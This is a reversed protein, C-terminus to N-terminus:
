VASRRTVKQCYAGGWGTWLENLIWQGDIKITMM